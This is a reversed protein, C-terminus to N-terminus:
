RSSVFHVATASLQKEFGTAYGHQQALASASNTEVFALSRIAWSNGHAASSLLRYEFELDLVEAVLDTAGPFRAGAGSRRGKANLVADFGLREAQAAIDALRESTAETEPGEGKASRIVKRQQEVEHYRLAISRGIVGELSPWLELLWTSIASIEIAVRACTYFAIPVGPPEVSRTVAWVHDAAGEVLMIAQAFASAPPDGYLERYAKSAAPSAPGPVNRQAQVLVAVNDLM